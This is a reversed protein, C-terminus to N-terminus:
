PSVVPFQNSKTASSQYRRTAMDQAQSLGCGGCFGGVVFSLCILLYCLFLCGQVSFSDEGFSGLIGRGVERGGEGGGLHIVNM